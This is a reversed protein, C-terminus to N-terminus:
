AYYLPQAVPDVARPRIEAPTLYKEKRWFTYVPQPATNLPHQPEKGPTVAAPADLQGSGDLALILFSHLQMEAWSYGKM